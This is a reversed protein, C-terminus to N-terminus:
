LDIPTLTIILQLWYCNFIRIPFFIIIENFETIISVNYVDSCVSKEVDALLSRKVVCEELAYWRYSDGRNYVERRIKRHDILRFSMLKWREWKCEKKRTSKKPLYRVSVNRGENLRPNVFSSTFPRKETSIDNVRTLQSIVLPYLSNFKM